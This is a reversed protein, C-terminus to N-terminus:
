FRKFGFVLFKNVLDNFTFIFNIVKFFGIFKIVNLPKFLFDAIRFHVCNKHFRQAVKFADAVM